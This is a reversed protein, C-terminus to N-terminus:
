EYEKKANQNVKIANHHYEGFLHMNEFKSISSLAVRMQGQSFYEQRQLEFSVVGEKLSLGQVKHITCAWSLVLPSQTRKISPHPKKKKIPFLTEHKQIPIWRQQQATIDCRMNVLGANEENFKVYIIKVTRHEHAIGMVKGVMVLRDEININSTLMVQAGIKIRLISVLNRTDGIKRARIADIQKDSLQVEHPIDDIANISITQGEM